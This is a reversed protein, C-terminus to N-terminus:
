VVETEKLLVWYEGNFFEPVGLETNFILTGDKPNLPKNTSLQIESEQKRRISERRWRILNQNNIIEDLVEITPEVVGDIKWSGIYVVDGSKFFAYDRIGDYKQEDLYIEVACKLQEVDMM